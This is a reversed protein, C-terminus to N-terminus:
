MRTRFSARRRISRSMLLTTGSMLTHKLARNRTLHFEVNFKIADKLRQSVTAQPTPLPMVQIEVDEKRIFIHLYHHVNSPRWLAGGGGGTIVYRVNGRMFQTLIHIHSSFVTEVRYDEMLHMFRRVNTTASFTLYNYKPCIPPRHLFVFVRKGHALQLERELWLYQFKQLGRKRSSDLVICHVNGIGFSYYPPAFLKRYIARSGRVRKDHNGISTFLPIASAELVDSLAHYDELRGSHTMDGNAMIFLPNLSNAAGIIHRLNEFVGHVDGFLFFDFADEHHTYVISIKQVSSGIVDFMVSTESRIINYVAGGQPQIRVAYGRINEVLITLPFPQPAPQLIKLHTEFGLARIIAVNKELSRIIGGRVNLVPVAEM